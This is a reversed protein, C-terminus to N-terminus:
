KHRGATKAEQWAIREDELWKGIDDLLDDMEADTMDDKTMDYVELIQPGDIEILQAFFDIQPLNKIRSTIHEIYATLRKRKVPQPYREHFKPKVKKEEVEEVKVEEVKPAEVKPKPPPPPPAFLEDEHTDPQNLQRRAEKAQAKHQRLDKFIEASTKEGSKMEVYNRIIRYDDNNEWTMTLLQKANLAHHHDVLYNIWDEDSEFDIRQKEIRSRQAILADEDQKRWYALLAKNPFYGVNNQKDVGKVKVVWRKIHSYFKSWNGTLKIENQHL